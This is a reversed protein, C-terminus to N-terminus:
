RQYTQAVEKLGEWGCDCDRGRRYGCNDTHHGYRILSRWLRKVEDVKAPRTM